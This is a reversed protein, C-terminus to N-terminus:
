GHTRSPPGDQLLHLAEIYADLGVADPGGAVACFRYVTELAALRKGAPTALIAAAATGADGEGYETLGYMASQVPRDYPRPSPVFSSDDRFDIAEALLDRVLTM